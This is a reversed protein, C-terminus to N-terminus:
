NTINTIEKKVNETYIVKQDKNDPVELNELYDLTNYLYKIKVQDLIISFNLLEKTAPNKVYYVIDFNNPYTINDVLFYLNNNERLYCSFGYKNKLLM